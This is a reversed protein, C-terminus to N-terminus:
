ALGITAVTFEEDQYQGAMAVVHLVFVEMAIASVNSSKEGSSVGEVM